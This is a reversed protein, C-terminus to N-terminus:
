WYGAMYKAVIADCAPNLLQYVLEFNEIDGYYPDPVSRNFDPKVENLIFKVKEMLDPRNKALLKVENYNDTDMVYILDFDILDQHTLKRARLTSIDIGYESLKSIARRDPAEGSHWGGTGASDIMWDLGATTAKHQLIGEAMPSRCINGMCVMLIKM